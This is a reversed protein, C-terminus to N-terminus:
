APLVFGDDDLDSLVSDFAGSVALADSPALEELSEAAQAPHMDSGGAYLSARAKRAAYPIGDAPVPTNVPLSLIPAANQGYGISSWKSPPHPVRAM